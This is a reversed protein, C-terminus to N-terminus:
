KRVKLIAYSGNKNLEELIPELKPVLLDRVMQSLLSHRVEIPLALIRQCTIHKDDLIMELKISHEITTM